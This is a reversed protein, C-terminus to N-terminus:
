WCNVIESRCVGWPYWGSRKYISYAVGINYAPDFLKQPESVHICAIQMLGYSGQCGKHWEPNYDDKGGNSEAFMIRRAIDIDWSYQELLYDWQSYDESKAGSASRQGLVFSFASPPINNRQYVYLDYSTINHTYIENDGEVDPTAWLLIAIILTLGAALM